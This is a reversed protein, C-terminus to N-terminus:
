SLISTSKGVAVALKTVELIMIIEAASIDKNKIAKHTAKEIEKRYKEAEEEM